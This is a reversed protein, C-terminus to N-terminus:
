DGQEIPPTVIAVIEAILLDLVSPGGEDCLCERWKGDEYEEFHFADHDTLVLRHLWYGEDGSDGRDPETWLIHPYRINGAADRNLGVFRGANKM